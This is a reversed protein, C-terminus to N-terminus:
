VLPGQKKIGQASLWQYVAVVEPDNERGFITALFLTAATLFMDLRSPVFPLGTLDNVAAVDEASVQIKDTQIEIKELLWALASEIQANSSRVTLHLGFLHRITAATENRWSGDPAQDALLANVTEQFDPEWQLAQAEGLWKQRAYLVAPTKSRRFVQYPDCRLKM